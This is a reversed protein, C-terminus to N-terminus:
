DLMGALEQRLRALVRFKAARVAGASMGLAAAVEPASRDNVVCEWCAQWTAPEFGAKMVELARGVLHRRYEEDWFAEDVAALADHMPLARM